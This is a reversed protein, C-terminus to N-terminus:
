TERVVDTSFQWAVVVEGYRQRVTFRPARDAIVSGRPFGRLGGAIGPEQECMGGRLPRNHCRVTRCRAEPPWRLCALYLSSLAWGPLLVNM